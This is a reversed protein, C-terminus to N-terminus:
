EGGQESDEILPCLQHKISTNKLIDGTLACMARKFIKISDRDPIGWALMKCDGCDRPMEMDIKIMAGGVESRVDPLLQNQPEM